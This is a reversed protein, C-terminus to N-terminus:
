IDYVELGANIIHSGCIFRGYLVPLAGGQEAMNVPGSLFFSARDEPRERDQISGVRATPQLMTAVGMLAIAAGLAFFSGYTVGFFGTSAAFGASLTQMTTFGPGVLTAGGTFFAGVVAATMIVAGLIVKGAGGGGKSGTLVPVIHFDIPVDGFQFRLENEDFELGTDIDGRVLRYYGDKFEEKFGNVQYMLFQIIEQPSRAAFRFVEGFKSLHGHLHINHVTERM